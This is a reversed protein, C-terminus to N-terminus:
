AADERLSPPNSSRRGLIWKGSPEATLEIWHGPEPQGNAPKEGTLIQCITRIVGKHAVVLASHGPYRALAGLGCEVRGRFDARPEGGPYEFGSTGKEWDEFLVPDSAKIEDRTLGEWRGFHIERFGSVLQVPKGDAVLWASQWARRMPSAAIVDFDEWRLKAAALRIQERGAESLGLDSSGHYRNASDGTTEGHRLLVLRRM